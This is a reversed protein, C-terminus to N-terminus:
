SGKRPGRGHLSAPSPPTEYRPAITGLLPGSEQTMSEMLLILRLLSQCTSLNFGQSMWSAKM